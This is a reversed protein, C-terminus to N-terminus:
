SVDSRRDDSDVHLFLFLVFLYLCDVHRVSCLARMGGPEASSDSGGASPFSKLFYLADRRRGPSRHRKFADASEGTRYEHPAVAHLAGSSRRRLLYCGEMRGAMWGDTRGDMGTPFARIFYM